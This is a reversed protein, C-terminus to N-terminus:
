PRRAIYRLTGSTCVVTGQSDLQDEFNYTRRATFTGTARKNRIGGRHVYRSAGSSGTFTANYRGVGARNRVINQAPFGKLVTEFKDGDTCKFRLRISLKSLKSQTAKFSVPRNDNTNGAYNGSRFAAFATAPVLLALSLLSITLTRKM